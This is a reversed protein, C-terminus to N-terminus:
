FGFVHSFLKKKKKKQNQDLFFRVPDAPDVIKPELVSSGPEFVVRNEGLFRDSGFFERMVVSCAGSFTSHGSIYDPFPPTAVYPTWNDGDITGVGLYRGQYVQVQQGQLACQMNTIPRVDAAFWFFLFFM